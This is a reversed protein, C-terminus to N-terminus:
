EGTQLALNCTFQETLGNNVERELWSNFNNRQDETFHYKGDICKNAQIEKGYMAWCISIFQMYRWNNGSEGGAKLYLKYRENTEM